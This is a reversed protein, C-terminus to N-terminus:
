QEEYFEGHLLDDYDDAFKGVTGLMIAFEDADIGKLARGVQLVVAGSEQVGFSAMGGLKANLTLLRRCFGDPDREPLSDFIPAVVIVADGSAVAIVNASGWRLRYTSEALEEAKDLLECSDLLDRLVDPASM